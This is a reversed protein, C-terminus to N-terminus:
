SSLGARVTEIIGAVSEVVEEITMGTTDVTVADPAAKLPAVERSSDYRDRATIDKEMQHQPVDVGKAELELRRRRAREPSSATLFIKVDADPCVVTGIDRGDVVVDAAATLRRQKEVMVERVYRHASVESVNRSVEQTRIEGTVERGGAFVLPAGGPGPKFSIDLNQSLAGLEDAAAPSIGQELALLTVTRYMAGTDLYTWGYRSAILRSITSKGAGAPGDIAVIM